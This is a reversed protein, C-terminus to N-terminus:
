PASVKAGRMSVNRGGEPVQPVASSKRSIGGKVPYRHVRLLGLPDELGRQDTSGLGKGDSFQPAQEVVWREM